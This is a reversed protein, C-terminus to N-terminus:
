ISKERLPCGDTSKNTIKLYTISTVKVMRGAGDCVTCKPYKIDWDSKHHDGTYEETKIQGQGYCTPCIIIEKEM